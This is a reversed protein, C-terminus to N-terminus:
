KSQENNAVGKLLDNIKKAQRKNLSGKQRAVQLAISGLCRYLSSYQPLTENIAALHKQLTGFDGRAIPGTLAHISGSREINKLSGYVLPLYAKKAEKEGLGIVQYISEVVNMLSVLYNSAFCAAAHYLPKQEDSIFFPIGGLDRVIKKAFMGAKKDATIGFYSGPINQIAQDISSFSQLPHISAIVAGAKRATELLDLGGAGSMHFVFKGKITPSLAIERCVSSIIDDPTTILIFDAKQLAEHPTRFASGGTYLKARKLASPSKDFVAAIEYGAKKLLYGIATGVMGLGFITFYKSYKKRM